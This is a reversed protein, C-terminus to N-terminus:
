GSAAGSEQLINLADQTKGVIVVVFEAPYPPQVGIQCIIQGADIVEPPNLSDDCKVLYADDSTLGDLMGARFLSELYTRVIRDMERQLRTNNPEFVMWQSNLDIAKEIMLVLRRVNVYTWATDSSVTRAGYVRIGRGPFSRIVNVNNDNLEGHVVQDVQTQVDLVNEAIANAPPKHVGFQLDSRAYVGAVIGSTPIPRVVGSLLLPDGVLVWPYYLAAHNTYEFAERTAAAEDPTIGELCDLIAVRYRMKECHGILAQQLSVIDAPSFAPPYEPPTQPVQPLPAPQNLKSCDYPPPAAHQPVIYPAPMFDPVAVISVEHVKELAVMGWSTGDPAGAGTFHKPALTKLGDAGGALAAQGSFISARSASVPGRDPQSLVILPCQLASPLSESEIQIDNPLPPLAVSLPNRILQETGDPYHLTLSLIQSGLSIWSAVIGNGWTGPSGAAIGLLRAGFADVIDLTATTAADPDAVRVIWCTDGGNAFFGDVSYALYAQPIPGGFVSAFQTRTEIKVAKHLPGREAIGVFGTIDTRLPGIAPLAADHWEFTVGPTHLTRM